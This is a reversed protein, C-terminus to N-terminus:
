LVIIISPNVRGLKSTQRQELVLRPQKLGLLQKPKFVSNTKLPNSTIVFALASVLRISKLIAASCSCDPGAENARRDDYFSQRNDERLCSSSPAIFRHRQWGALDLRRSDEVPRWKSILQSPLELLSHEPQLEFNQLFEHSLLFFTCVFPIEFRAPM